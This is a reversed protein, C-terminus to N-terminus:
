AHLDTTKEGGRRAVEISKAAKAARAAMRPRRNGGVAKAVATQSAVAVLRSVRAKAKPAVEEQVM